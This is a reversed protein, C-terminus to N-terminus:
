YMAMSYSQSVGLGEYYIVGVERQSNADGQNAAQLYWDTAAQYDQRAGESDRYMNGLAVQADKDGQSASIGLQVLDREELAKTTASKSQLARSSLGRGNSSFPLVPIDKITPTQNDLLAQPAFLQTTSILITTWRRIRM